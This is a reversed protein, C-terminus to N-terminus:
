NCDVNYTNEKSTKRTKREKQKRKNVNSGGKGNGKTV